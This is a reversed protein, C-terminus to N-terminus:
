NSCFFERKKLEELTPVDYAAREEDTTELDYANPEDLCDNANIFATQTGFKEKEGISLLYRDLSVAYIVKAEESGLEVAKAALKNAFEYHELCDGHHFILAAHYFAEGSTVQGKAIYDYVEQRRNLDNTFITTAEDTTLPRELMIQRDSQDAQYLEELRQEVTRNYEGSLSSTEISPSCETPFTLPSTATQAVATQSVVTLVLGFAILTHRM